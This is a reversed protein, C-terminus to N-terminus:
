FPYQHTLISLPKPSPLTTSPSKRALNQCIKGGILKETNGVLTKEPDNQDVTLRPQVKWTPNLKQFPNAGIEMTKNQSPPTIYDQGGLQPNTIVPSTTNGDQSLNPCPNGGIKKNHKGPTVNQSLPHQWHYPFPTTKAPGCKSM